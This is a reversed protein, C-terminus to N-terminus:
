VQPRSARAATSTWRGTVGSQKALAELGTWDSRYHPDLQVALEDYIRTAELVLATGGASTWPHQRLADLQAVVENRPGGFRHSTTGSDHDRLEMALVLCSRVVELGLHFGILLDARALKVVALAATLRVEMLEDGVARTSPLRADSDAPRRSAALLQTTASRRYLVRGAPLAGPALTSVLDLRRGDDYVVRQVSLDGSKHRTLAWPEGFPAPWAATSTEDAAPDLLVALDVDSWEDLQGSDPDAASGHVRLEIVRVDELAALRADDILQQQWMMM